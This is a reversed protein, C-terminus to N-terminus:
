TYVWDPFADHEAYHLLLRVKEESESTPVRGQASFVDLVEIATGVDVFYRFGDSPIEAPVGGGSEADVFICESASSWPPRLCLLVEEDHTGLKDIADVLVM